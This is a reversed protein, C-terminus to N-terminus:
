FFILYILAGVGAGLLVTLAIAIVLGVNHGKDPTEIIITEQPKAVQPETSKKTYVNKPRVLKVVRHEKPQAMTVTKADEALRGGVIEGGKIVVETAPATGSLPRKEVSVSSLFPSKGDVSNYLTRYARNKAPKQTTEEDEFLPKPESVFDDTEQEKYSKIAEAITIDKDDDKNDLREIEDIDDLADIEEAFAAAERSLNDTLPSSVESIDEPDDAFGALAVALDDDSMLPSSDKFFGDDGINRDLSGPAAPMTVAGSRTISRAPNINPMSDTTIVTTRRVVKASPADMQPMNGTTIRVPRKVPVRSRPPRPPRPIPPRDIPRDPTPRRAPLTKAKKARLEESTFPGNAVNMPSNARNPVFDIFMGRSAMEPRKAVVKPKKITRKANRVVPRSSKSVGKVSKVPKTESKKVTM